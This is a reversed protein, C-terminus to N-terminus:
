GGEKMNRQESQLDRLENCTRFLEMDSPDVDDIGREGHKILREIEDIVAQCRGEVTGDVEVQREFDSPVKTSSKQTVACAPMLLAGILALIRMRPSQLLPTKNPNNKM